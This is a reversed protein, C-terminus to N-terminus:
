WFVSIVVMVLHFSLVVFPQLQPLIYKETFELFVEGNTTGSRVLLDVVGRTSIFAIASMREGRVFLSEKQMPIGRVSYGFRQVANRQDAGKEEWVGEEEWM